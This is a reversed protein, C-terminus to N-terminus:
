KTKGINALIGNVFEYSKENGYEKALEVIENAVVEIPTNAKLFEYTAIILLTREVLGIREYAWNQTNAKITDKINDYNESIGKVSTQLFKLQSESLTSVFDENNSLYIDFAKELEESTSETAEVGFVIKFLEERVLRIGAKKKKTEEGFIEKM